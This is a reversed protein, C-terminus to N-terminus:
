GGKMMTLDNFNRGWRHFAGEANAFKIFGGLFISKPDRLGGGSKRREAVKAIERGTGGDSLKAEFAASGRSFSFGILWFTAVNLIRKPSSVYVLAPSIVLTENDSSEGLGLVQYKKGLQKGLAEEFRYALREVEQDSYKNQPDDFHETDVPNIKVKKFKSLDVEPKVAEQRFEKGKQLDGYDKLYGSPKYVSTCASLLFTLSLLLSVAQGKKQIKM